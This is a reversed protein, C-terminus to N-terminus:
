GACYNLLLFRTAVARFMDSLGCYEEQPLYVARRVQQQDNKKVKLAGTLPRQDYIKPGKATLRAQVTGAFDGFPMTIKELM